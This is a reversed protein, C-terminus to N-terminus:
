LSTTACAEFGVEWIFVLAFAFSSLFLLSLLIGLCSWVWILNSLIGRYHWAAFLLRCNDATPICTTSIKCYTLLWYLRKVANRDSVTVSEATFADALTKTKAESKPTTQTCDLQFHLSLTLYCFISQFINIMYCIRHHLRLVHGHFSSGPM